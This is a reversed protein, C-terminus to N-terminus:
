RRPELGGVPSEPRATVLQEELEEMRTIEASRSPAIERMKGFLAKRFEKFRPLFRPRLLEYNRARTFEAQINWYHRALEARQEATLSDPPEVGEGILSEIYERREVLKRHFDSGALVWQDVDGSIREWEAAIEPDRMAQERVPALTRTLQEYSRVRAEADEADPQQAEATAEAGAAGDGGEPPRGDAWGVKESRGCAALFVCLALEVVTAGSSGIYRM